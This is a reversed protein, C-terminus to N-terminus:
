LILSGSSPSKTDLNEEKSKASDCKSHRGLVAARTSHKWGFGNCSDAAIVQQQQRKRAEEQELARLRQVEQWKIAKDSISQIEYIARQLKDEIRTSATDELVLSSSPGSRIDLRMRDTPVLDM